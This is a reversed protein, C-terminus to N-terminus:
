KVNNKIEFKEFLDEVLLKRLQNPQNSSYKKKIFFKNKFYIVMTNYKLKLMILSFNYIKQQIPFYNQTDFESLDILIIVFNYKHNKLLEVRLISTNFILIM